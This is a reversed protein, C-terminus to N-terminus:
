SIENSNANNSNKLEHEEVPVKARARPKGENLSRGVFFVTIGVVSVLLSGFLVKTADEERSAILAKSPQIFGKLSNGTETTINPGAATPDNTSSLMVSSALAALVGLVLLIIGAITTIKKM